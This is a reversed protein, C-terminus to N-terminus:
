GVQVAVISAAATIEGGGASGQDQNYGFGYVGVTTEATVMVVKVTSGFLDHGKAPSIAVGGVTGVDTGWKADGAATPDQGIRLGVQPMSGAAGAAARNFTVSTNVLWTGKQLKFSGLETFGDFYKGGLTKIVTPKITASVGAKGYVDPTNKLFAERDAPAIKSKPISNDVVQSAAVSRPCLPYSLTKCDPRTAGNAAVTIGVLVGAGLVGAVLLRGAKTNLVKKFNM